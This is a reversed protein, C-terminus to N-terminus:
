DEQESKRLLPIKSNTSNLRSKYGSTKESLNTETQRASSDNSVKANVKEDGWFCRLYM